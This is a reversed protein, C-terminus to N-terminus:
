WVSGTIVQKPRMVVRRLLRKSPRGTPLDLTLLQESYRIDEMRYRSKVKKDVKDLLGNGAKHRMFKMEATKLRRTNRQKLTGIEAM